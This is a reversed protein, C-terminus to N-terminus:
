ILVKLPTKGKIKLHDGMEFGRRLSTIVDYIHRGYYSIAQQYFSYSTNTHDYKDLVFAKKLMIDIIKAM